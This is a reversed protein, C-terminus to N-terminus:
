FSISLIAQHSMKRFFCNRFHQRSQYNYINQYEKKIAISYIDILNKPIRNYELDICEGNFPGIEHIAWRVDIDKQKHPYAKAFNKDIDNEFLYLRWGDLFVLKDRKKFINKDTTFNLKNQFM